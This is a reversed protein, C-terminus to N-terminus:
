EKEVSVWEDGIRVAGGLVLAIRARREAEERTRGDEILMEVFVQRSVRRRSLLTPQYRNIPGLM